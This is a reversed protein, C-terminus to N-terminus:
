SFARHSQSLNRVDDLSYRGQRGARCASTAARFNEKDRKDLGDSFFKRVWAADLTMWRSGAGCRIRTSAPDCAFGTLLYFSREPEIPFPEPIM